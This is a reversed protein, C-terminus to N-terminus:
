ARIMVLNIDTTDPVVFDQITDLFGNAKVTITHPGYELGTLNISKNITTGILVGDLYVDAEVLINVPPKEEIIFSVAQDGWSRWYLGINKIIVKDTDLSLIDCGTNDQTTHEVDNVWLIGYYRNLGCANGTKKVGGLRVAYTGYEGTWSISGPERYNSIRFVGSTAM